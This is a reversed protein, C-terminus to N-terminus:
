RRPRVIVAAVIIAAIIAVVTVDTGLEKIKKGLIEVFKKVAERIPLIEQGAVRARSANYRRIATERIVPPALATQNRFQLDYGELRGAYLALTLPALEPHFRGISRVDAGVNARLDRIPTPAFQDDDWATLGASLALLERQIEDKTM